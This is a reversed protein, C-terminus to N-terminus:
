EFFQILNGDPDTILFSRKGSTDTYIDGFFNVNLEKLRQITASLDSSKFGVKTYGTILTREPKGALIDTSSLFSRVQILELIMQDAELVAIKSGREPSDNRNRLKVAFVNEYWRISADIDRVVIAAFYPIVEHQGYSVVTTLTFICLVFTGKM